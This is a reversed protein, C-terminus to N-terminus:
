LICKIYEDKQFECYFMVGLCGMIVVDLIVVVMLDNYMKLDEVGEYGRLVRLFIKVYQVNIVNLVDSIDDYFVKFEDVILLFFDDFDFSGLQLNLVFKEEFRKIVWVVIVQNGILM